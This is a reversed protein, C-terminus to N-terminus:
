TNEGWSTPSPPCSRLRHLPPPPSYRNLQKILWILTLRNVALDESGTTITSSLPQVAVTTHFPCLLIAAEDHIVYVSRKYIYNNFPFCRKKHGHTTDSITTRYCNLHIPYTAIGSAAWLYSHHLKQFIEYLAKIPYTRPCDCGLRSGATNFCCPSRHTRKGLSSFSVLLRELM